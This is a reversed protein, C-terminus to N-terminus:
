TQKNISKNKPPKINRCKNIYTEPKIPPLSLRPTLSQGQSAAMVLSARPTAGPGPLGASGGSLSLGALGSLQEPPPPLPWQSSAQAAYQSGLQGSVPQSGPPPPPPTAPPVVFSGYPSGTTQPGAVAPAASSPGLVSVAVPVLRADSARATRQPTAARPTAARPTAAGPAPSMSPVLSHPREDLGPSPAPRLPWGTADRRIAFPGAGLPGASQCAAHHLAMPPGAQGALSPMNGYPQPFAQVQVPVLGSAHMQAQVAGLPLTQLASWNPPPTLSGPPTRAGVAPPPTRMGAAPPTRVGEPPPSMLPAGVVPPTRMGPPPPTRMGAAPPTRVGEPPHSMLPAGVVPPTRMGAAPPTRVGEPPHSMLPAVVRLHGPPVIVPVMRPGTTVHPGSLGAVGYQATTQVPDRVALLAKTPSGVDALNGVSGSTLITTQSAYRPLFLNFLAPPFLHVSM